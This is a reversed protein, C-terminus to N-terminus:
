YFHHYGGSREVWWVEIDLPTAGLRAVSVMPGEMGGKYWITRRVWIDQGQLGIEVM